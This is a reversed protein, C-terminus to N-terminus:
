FTSKKYRLKGKKEVFLGKNKIQLVKGVTFNIIESKSYNLSYNDIVVFLKPLVKRVSYSQM